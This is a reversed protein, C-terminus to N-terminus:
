RKARELNKARRRMLAAAALAGAGILGYAGPEPVAAAVTYGGSTDTSVYDVVADTASAEVRGAKALQSQAPKCLSSRAASAAAPRIRM